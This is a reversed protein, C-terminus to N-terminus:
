SFLARLATMDVKGTSLMPLDRDALLRFHRPVKYASLQERASVELDIIDVEEGDQHVLVAAVDEGRDGAPVGFVYAGRIGPIERLVAEVEAPAINSGGSKIM